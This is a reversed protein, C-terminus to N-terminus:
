DARVRAGSERDLYLRAQACSRLISAPCDPDIPGRLARYVADAKRAEPAIALIRRASLLAPITLSVARKPVDELRPFHGEGVQQRRSAEALEVVRVRAPDHFDAPPDNFALHGNEGIGLVCLDAPFVHLLREYEAAAAEPTGSGNWVPYFARPHIFDLLERRLFNSFRAPHEPALGVYEDLHFINVQRWPLGRIERLAKLFSLQSNGSALLLNAEGKLEVGLRIGDAADAAAATGLSGRDPFFRVALADVAVEFFADSAMM